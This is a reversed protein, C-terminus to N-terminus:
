PTPSLAQTRAKTVAHGVGREVQACLVLGGEAM